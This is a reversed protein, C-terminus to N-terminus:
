FMNNYTLSFFLRIVLCFCNNVKKMVAACGKFCSVSVDYDQFYTLYIGSIRQIFVFWIVTIESSFLLLNGKTIWQLCELVFTRVILLVISDLYHGEFHNSRLSSFFRSIFEDVQVVRETSIVNNVTKIRELEFSM